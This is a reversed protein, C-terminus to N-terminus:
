PNEEDQDARAVVRASQDYWDAFIQTGDTNIQPKKDLNM